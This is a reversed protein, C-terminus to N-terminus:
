PAQGQRHGPRRSPRSDVPPYPPPQAQALPRHHCPACAAAARRARPWSRRWRWPSREAHSREAPKTHNTAACIRANTHITSCWSAAAVGLDAQRNAPTDDHGSASGPAGLLDSGLGAPTQAGLVLHMGVHRGQKAIRALAERAAPRRCLEPVEDVFVFL